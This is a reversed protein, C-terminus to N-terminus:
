ETEHRWGSLLHSNEHCQVAAYYELDAVVCPDPMIVIRHEGVYRTCAVIVRGEPPTIGCAQEVYGVPVFLVPVLGTAQWRAPPIADSWQPQAPGEPAAGLLLLPLLALASKM